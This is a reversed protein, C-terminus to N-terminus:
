DLDLDAVHTIRDALYPHRSVKGHFRADATVVPYQEQIALALYFCDYVPHDLDLALRASSAALQRMSFPIGIPAARLAESADALDQARIEGRRCVAWLANCVEAFLLEPAILTAEAELLHSAEDSWQEHVLWKVVISADVVYGKM